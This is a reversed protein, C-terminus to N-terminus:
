PSFPTLFLLSAPSSHVLRSLPLNQHLEWRLFSIMLACQTYRGYADCPYLFYHVSEEELTIQLPSSATIAALSLVCRPFLGRIHAANAALFTNLSMNWHRKQSGLLARLALALKAYLEGVAHKSSVAKEDSMCRVPKCYKPALINVGARPPCFIRSCNAIAGFGLTKCRPKNM